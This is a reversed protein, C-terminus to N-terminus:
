NGGLGREMIKEIHLIHTLEDSQLPCWLNFFSHFKINELSEELHLAPTLHHRTQTKAPPDQEKHEDAKKKKEVLERTKSRM